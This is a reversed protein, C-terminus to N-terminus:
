ETKTIELVYGGSKVEVPNQEVWENAFEGLYFTSRFDRIEKRKVLKRRVASILSNAWILFTEDKKILKTEEYYDSQFYLRGRRIIGYEPLYGSRDLEVVPADKFTDIGWAKNVGGLKSFTLKDLDEKRVLYMDEAETISPYEIIEIQREDYQTPVFVANREKLMNYFWELDKTHLYYNIQKGM